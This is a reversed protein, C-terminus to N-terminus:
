YVPALAARPPPVGATPLGQDHRRRCPCVGATHSNAPPPTRHVRPLRRLQAGWLAQVQSSAKFWHHQLGVAPGRYRVAVSTLFTRHHHMVATAARSSLLTHM